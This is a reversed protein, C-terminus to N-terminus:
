GVEKKTITQGAKFFIRECPVSTGMICFRKKVFKFLRPYVHQNLKWWVLPDERRSLLSEHLYKDLEVKFAATPDSSQVISVVESDFDKWISDGDTQNPLTTVQTTAQTNNVINVTAAKNILSKKGESFAFQHLFGYNKFRPHLITSEAYLPNLELSIKSISVSKESSIETTIKKFPKLLECARTFIIWDNNTLYENYNTEALATCLPIKLDLVRKLMEFTSNWRTVVDQILVFQPSYGLQEQISKLKGVATTSKRFHRVIGSIKEKVEQIEKIAKQVALNLSHDFCRVHRWKCLDIVKLINSANDLTCASVRNELGWEKIVKLLESKLNDSTCNNDIFHATAAIYGENKKSTWSDTTISVFHGNGVIDSKVKDYTENYLISLLSTSLSKRSPLDYGPNLMKLLKVFEKDEVISFPYYEKVIM